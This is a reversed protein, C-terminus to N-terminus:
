VMLCTAHLGAPDQLEEVYMCLCRPDKTLCWFVFKLLFVFHVGHQLTSMLLGHASHGVLVRKRNACAVTSLFM